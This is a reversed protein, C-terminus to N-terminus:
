MCRRPGLKIGLAFVKSDLSSLRGCDSRANLIPYTNVAQVKEESVFLSLWRPNEVSRSPAMVLIQLVMYAPIICIYGLSM